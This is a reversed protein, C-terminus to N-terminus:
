FSIINSATLCKTLPVNSFKPNLRNSYTTTYLKNRYKKHTQFHSDLYTAQSGAHEQNLCINPPYIRNTVEYFKSYNFTIIDDIYRATNLLQPIHQVNNLNIQETVYDLEYSFLYFNAIFVACNTGM